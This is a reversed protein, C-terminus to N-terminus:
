RKIAVKHDADTEKLCSPKQWHTLRAEVTRLSSTTPAHSLVDYAIDNRGLHQELTLAITMVRVRTMDLTRVTAIQAMVGLVFYAV